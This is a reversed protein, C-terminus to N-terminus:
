QGGNLERGGVLVGAYPIESIACSEIRWAGDLTSDTLTGSFWARSPITPCRSNIYQGYVELKNDTLAGTFYTFFAGMVQGNVTGDEDVDLKMYTKGGIYDPTPGVFVYDYQSWDENPVPENEGSIKWGCGVLVLLVSLVLLLKRM